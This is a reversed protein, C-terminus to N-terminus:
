KRRRYLLCYIAMLGTVIIIFTLVIFFGFSAEVIAGGLPFEFYSLVTAEGPIIALSPTQSQGRGPYVPMSGTLQGSSFGGTTRVVHNAFLVHNNLLVTGDSGVSYIQNPNKSLQFETSASPPGQIPGLSIGGNQEVAKWFANMAKSEAQNIAGIGGNQEIAGWFANLAKAQQSNIGGAAATLANQMMQQAQPNAPQNPNTSAIQQQLNQMLQPSVSTAQAVASAQAQVAQRTAADKDAKESAAAALDHSAKPGLLGKEGSLDGALSLSPQLWQCDTCLSELTGQSGIVTEAVQSGTYTVGTSTQAIAAFNWVIHSLGNLNTYIMDMPVSVLPTVVMTITNNIPTALVETFNWQAEGTEPVYATLNMQFDTASPQTTNLTVFGSASLGILPVSSSILALHPLAQTEYYTQISNNSYLATIAMKFALSNPVVSLFQRQSSMLIPSGSGLVPNALGTSVTWLTSQGVPFIVAFGIIVVLFYALVVVKLLRGHKRKKAL